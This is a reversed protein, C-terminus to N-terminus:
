VKIEKSFDFSNLGAEKLLRVLEFFNAIIKENPMGRGWPTNESYKFTLEPNGGADRNHLHMTKSWDTNVWELGFREPHAFVETGPRVTFLSPFVLDPRTEEIFSWTAEVIDEPEGPLGIIMYLRVEIGVSKLLAITEKSKEVSIRKNIIDLARQSVSEVGLGMAVCGSQQMIRAIEPTVGDVRCQGRWVIGTRGIAELHRIADARKLPIGIEDQLSIGQIGYERKLYEIEDEVHRTSRFRIGPTGEIGRTISCFSCSYPCGRSFLVTTGWLEDFGPRNRLTLMNKRATASHPLYSRRWFPYVNIDVVRTQKYVQQPRSDLIDNLAQTILEEGEGLILTDFIELSKQPFAMVHPGGALHCAKPYLRKLMRVLFVQEEYDLTYVSHLYVDCEPIHFIAFERKIGRLDILRVRVREGFSNEIITLLQFHTFPDGRFPNFLYDSSPLIFGVELM